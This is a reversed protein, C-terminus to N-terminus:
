HVTENNTYLASLEHFISGADTEDCYGRVLAEVIIIIIPRTAEEPLAEASKTIYERLEERTMDMGCHALVHDLEDPM